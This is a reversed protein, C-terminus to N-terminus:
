PDPPKNADHPPQDTSKRVIYTPRAKLEEFIAAVYLAIVGVGSLLLGGLILQLLIVTTFGTLADGRILKRYLTWLGLFFAFILTSFGLSAVARLPLASFAVLNRLSYRVLATLSWKSSGAIRPAVEFPVDTSKFGVWHVLGRFFRTKEPLEKLAEVVARDLLKFDSAGKFDRGMLRHFTAALLRYVLSEQGRRHKVGNVVEYGQQWNRVLEPIVEPPHQLDADMLIVGQGRTADLGALLASEKGFNRSLQLARLRSDQAALRGLTEFTDDSSGDDVCVVEFSHQTLELQQLIAALAAQLSDGENYM